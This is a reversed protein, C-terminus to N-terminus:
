TYMSNALEHGHWPHCFTSAFPLVGTPHQEVVWGQQLVQLHEWPPQARSFVPYTVAKDDTTFVVGTYCISNFCSYVEQMGQTPM